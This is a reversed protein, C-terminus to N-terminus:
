DVGSRKRVEERGKRARRKEGPWTVGGGGVSVQIHSWAPAFVGNALGIEITAKVHTDVACWVDRRVKFAMRIPRWLLPIRCISRSAQIHQLVPWMYRLSPTSKWSM